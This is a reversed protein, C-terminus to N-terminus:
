ASLFTMASDWSLTLPAMHINMGALEPEAVRNPRAVKTMIRPGKLNRVEVVFAESIKWQYASVLGHIAHSTVLHNLEWITMFRGPPAKAVVLAAVTVRVWM